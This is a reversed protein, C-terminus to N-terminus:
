GLSADQVFCIEDLTSCDRPTTKYTDYDVNKVNRLFLSYCPLDWYGSLEHSIFYYHSVRTIEPYGSMSADSVKKKVNLNEGTNRYTASINKLTVNEVPYTKGEHQCGTIASPLETNTAKVNEIKVDKISGVDSKDYKLRDGLWILVPSSIGDMTVNEINVGQINAGDASEIAIGAYGATIGSPMFFECNKLSVNKVDYQTETGIKFCNALSSLVCSDIQVNEIEGKESKLVIADDGTAIFCDSININKSGCIDIGDSNAVHINNDIVVNKIKVDQSKEIVFTWSAAEELVINEVQVNKCESLKVTHCRDTDKAFRIRKRSEIVRTYLNFEELAYLPQTEEAENTYSEGCASITGGGCLKVNEANEAYIVATNLPTESRENEDCDLSVLRAGSSVFLTINSKLYITSVKYEGKPIYITGTGQVSSIAENIAASNKEGSATESIDPIVAGEPVKEAKIYKEFPINEIRSTGEDLRYKTENKGLTSKNAHSKRYFNIGFAGVTLAAVCLVCIAIKFLKRM